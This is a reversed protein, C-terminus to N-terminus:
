AVQSIRADRQRASKSMAWMDEFARDSSVVRWLGYELGDCLHDPSLTGKGKEPKGTDDYQRTKLATDLDACGPDVTMRGTKFLKNVFFIREVVSPNFTGM